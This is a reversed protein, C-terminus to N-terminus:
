QRVESSVEQHFLRMVAVLHTESLPHQKRVCTLSIWSFTKSSTFCLPTVRKMTPSINQLCRKYILLLLFVEHFNKFLNILFLVLLFNRSCDPYFIKISIIALQKCMDTSSILNFLSIWTLTKSSVFYPRTVQNINLSM